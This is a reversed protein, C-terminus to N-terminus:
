PQDRHRCRHRRAARRQHRTVPDQKDGKGFLSVLKDYASDLRRNWRESENDVHAGRGLADHGGKALPSLIEVLCKL